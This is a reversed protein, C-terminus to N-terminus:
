GEFPNVTVVGLTEFDRTNRTAVTLGHVQATAAILADIILDGSRRHMLKAWQVFTLDDAVLVNSTAILAHLWTEIEMAKDPNQERTKEAGRQIEGITAVSLFLSDPEQRGFWAMAGPHPRSKRIESVVNTDLLWM